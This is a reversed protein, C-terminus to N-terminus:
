IIQISHSLFRLNWIDAINNNNDNKKKKALNAEIEFTMKNNALWFAWMRDISSVHTDHPWKINFAYVTEARVWNRIVSSLSYVDVSVVEKRNTNKNWERLAQSISSFCCMENMYIKILGKAARQQTNGLVSATVVTTYMRNMYIYIGCVRHENRSEGCEAWEAWLYVTFIFSSINM